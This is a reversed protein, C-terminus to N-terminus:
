RVEDARIMRVGYLTAVQSGEHAQFRVTVRAKGRVLEAPIPHTVDYFQRPTSRGVEQVAIREGDVLVDFTAPASRRDDSYFTLVLAMPHSADVPLEYSFWSRAGRGPRGMLRAPRSDEAAQLNAEGEVTLDGPQVFALTAAELRRLREAAAAYAAKEAEWEEPTFLDWYTSYLRRHLQYFPVLAQEQVPGEADPVRGADQTRFSGPVGGAPIVWEDAPKEAAVFVPVVPPEPRAGGPGREGREPEPGLDGALVLPGWLISARRPNDPTPELRLGKPLTIEVTDGTSWRRRVEAYGSVPLPSRYLASGGRRGGEREPPALPPLDVARGNVRLTFGEGAWFPRRLALTLERPERLTMRLTARGGLPLDTDMALEAGAAEWRATSPAYLNVWLRDGGEYYIGDWHLAHSEMGSGVCCTFSRFMAQYEHAVGMGVPVMYCTRGDEPDMSALVHNFLAKEHFDAYAPDPAFEFLRRTLKLMNYINCSESTRGDIRESLQDPPGWYEDTGHGGTAFSHHHAVRSWFFAAAMLDGPNGTYGFRDASAILKPINTNGHKGGLNDQQRQLPDIFADHEFKWSLALWRDDGTDAYLDVLVEGMGGFECGMMEELQAESLGALIGEAWEAFRVEVELADRNGTFRYADRLGAYTKHLTYWPAWEGNLDFSEAEIEGRALAGFCARGGELASLYGDGHAEQVEKLERVIHDAREKFREDGTAAYMLSVGSLYHGAIHGTLNRGPGDWGGYPEAKPTLGARERYFALMRDPELELLYRRDLDQAHKLPGGTLRVSTLPLRRARELAPGGPAMGQAPSRTGPAPIAGEGLVPSPVLLPVAGAGLGLKIAARRSITM